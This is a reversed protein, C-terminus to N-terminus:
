YVAPDSTATETIIFISHVMVQLSSGGVAAGSGLVTCKGETESLRRASMEWSM